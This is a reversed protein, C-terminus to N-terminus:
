HWEPGNRLADAVTHGNVTIKPVYRGAIDLATDVDHYYVSRFYNTRSSPLPEYRRRLTKSIATGHHLVVWRGRGRWEITVSFHRHAPWDMPLASITYGIAQKYIKTM